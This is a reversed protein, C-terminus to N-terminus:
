ATLVGHVATEHDHIKTPEVFLFATGHKGPVIGTIPRCVLVDVFDCAVTAVVSFGTGFNLVVCQLKEANFVGSECVLVM